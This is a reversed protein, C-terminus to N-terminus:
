GIAVSTALEFKTEKVAYLKVEDMDTDNDQLEEIREEAEEKTYVKDDVDNDVSIVFSDDNDVKKM